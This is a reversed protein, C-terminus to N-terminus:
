CVIETWALVEVMLAYPVRNIVRADSLMRGRAIGFFLRSSQESACRHLSPRGVPRQCAIAAAFGVAIGNM